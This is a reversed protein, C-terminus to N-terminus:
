LRRGRKDRIYYYVRYTVSYIKTEFDVAHYLRERFDSLAASKDSYAGSTIILRDVGYASKDSGVLFAVGKYYALSAASDDSDDPSGFAVRAKATLQFRRTERPFEDHTPLDAAWAMIAVVLEPDLEKNLTATYSVGSTYNGSWTEGQKGAVFPDHRRTKLRRTPAASPEELSRLREPPIKGRRAWGSATRVTVGFIAALQAPTHTLYRRELAALTPLRKGTVPDREMMEARPWYREPIGRGSRLWRRVTSPAVGLGLALRRTGHRTHLRRLHGARYRVM